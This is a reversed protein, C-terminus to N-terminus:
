EVPEYSAYSAAGGPTRQSRVFDVIEEYSGRVTFEQGGCSVIAGPPILGTPKIYAVLDPNVAVAMMHKWDQLEILM